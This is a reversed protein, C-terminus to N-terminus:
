FFLLAVYGAIMAMALIVAVFAALLKFTFLSRLLILETLSAGAGGIILALIAGVSVGKTMLAASLPILAEARLYLPIGIVAAVPIAFPNDSGAHKELLSTPVYGYIVSGIAIGIFLYPLVNKFDAWAEQWLGSYKSKPRVEKTTQSDCCGTSQTIMQTASCCPAAMSECSNSIAPNVNCSSGSVGCDSTEEHRVYREFGLIQLLWGAGLSVLFASLVYITTLTLGFTAVFLVVIIPNLLPSSFLFVMMPGFGAKARILGKLMPITSCSCFPTISGLAAALFYGRKRNASLLAEVRSPPIHRQLIGVLLSIGIFLASLEIALFAFMNLTEQLQSSM